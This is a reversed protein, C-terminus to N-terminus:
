LVQITRKVEEGQPARLIENRFVIGAHAGNKSLYVQAKTGDNATMTHVFGGKSHAAKNVTIPQNLTPQNATKISDKPPVPAMVSAPNKAPIAILPKGKISTANNAAQVDQNTIKLPKNELPMVSAPNKAPIAILPKGKISTANNVAQVDQNTIKLPKKTLPTVSATIKALSTALLKAKPSVAITLNSPLADQKKVMLPSTTPPEILAGEASSVVTSDEILGPKKVVVGPQTNDKLPPNMTPLPGGEPPVNKIFEAFDGENGSPRYRAVTIFGYRKSVATGVGLEASNAWIMQSFHKYPGSRSKPGGKDFDYNKVEDYWRQVMERCNVCNDVMAGECKPVPPQFYALNEGIKRNQIAVQDHQFSDTSALQDAWVQAGEALDHSWMLPPVGHKARYSNHADLCDQSFPDLAGKNGSAESNIVIVPAKGNTSGAEVVQGVGDNANQVLIARGTAEVPVGKKPKPENAPIGTATHLNPTNIPSRQNAKNQQPLVKHLIINKITGKETTSTNAAPHHAKPSTRSHHVSTKQRPAEQTPSALGWIILCAYGLVYAKM